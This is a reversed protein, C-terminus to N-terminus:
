AYEELRMDQRACEDNCYSRKWQRNDSKLVLGCYKFFEANEAKTGPIGHYEKGCTNCTLKYLRSLTV